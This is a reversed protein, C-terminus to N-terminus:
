HLPIAPLSRYSSVLFVGKSFCMEEGLGSADPIRRYQSDCSASVINAQVTALEVMFGGSFAKKM